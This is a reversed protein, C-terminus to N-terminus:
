LHWFFSPFDWEWLKKETIPVLTPVL